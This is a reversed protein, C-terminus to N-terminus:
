VVSEQKVSMVIDGGNADVLVTDGEKVFLNVIVGSDAGEGLKPLKFDM